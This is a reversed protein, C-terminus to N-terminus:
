EPLDVASHGTRDTGLVSEVPHEFLQLYTLVALTWVLIAGLIHAAVIAAPVGLAFQVYGIAGQGVTSVLLLRASRILQGQAALLLLLVVVSTVLCWAAVSHIRAVDTLEFPLRSARSDGSNPGTGTVVTGTLLVITSLAISARGVRVTRRDVIPRTPTPARGSRDWLVVANWLLVMSLLFHGAVVMPHLDALVTVAGLLIQAVVGAVLGWAWRILDPRRPVRRYASLVAAITAVAVVGSILRNGFEIWGHLEWEPLFRDDNCTPWDECGLGAETLRVAAGSLVILALFTGAIAVVRRYRHPSVTRHWAQVKTAAVTM